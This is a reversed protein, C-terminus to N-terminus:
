EIISIAIYIVAGYIDCVEDKAELEEPQETGNM